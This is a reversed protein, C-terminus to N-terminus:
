YTVSNIRRASPLRSNIAVFSFRGDFDANDSIGKLRPENIDVVGLEGKPLPQSYRLCIM